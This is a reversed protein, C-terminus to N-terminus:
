NGVDTPEAKAQRAKIMAHADAAADVADHACRRCVDFGNLYVTPPEECTFCKKPRASM